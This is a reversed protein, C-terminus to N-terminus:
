CLLGCRWRYNHLLIYLCKIYQLHHHHYVFQTHAGNHDHIFHVFSFNLLLRTEASSTPLVLNDGEFYQFISSFFNCFFVSVFEKERRRTKVRQAYSTRYFRHWWNLHSVLSLSFSRFIFPLYIDFQFVLWIGYYFLARLLCPRIQRGHILFWVNHFQVNIKNRQQQEM